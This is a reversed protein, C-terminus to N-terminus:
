LGDQEENIVRGQYEEWISNRTGKIIEFLLHVNTGLNTILGYINTEFEQAQKIAYDLNPLYKRFDVRKSSHTLKSVQETIYRHKSSVRPNERLEDVCYDNKVDVLHLLLWFEFCPNSLFM